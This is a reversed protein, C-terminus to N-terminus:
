NLIDAFHNEFYKRTRSALFRYPSGKGKPYAVFGSANQEIDFEAKYRPNLLIDNILKSRGIRLLDIVDDIDWWQGEERQNVLSLYEEKSIVVLNEPVPVTINFTQQM